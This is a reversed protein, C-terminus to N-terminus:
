WFLNYLQFCLKIILILIKLIPIQLLQYTKYLWWWWYASLNWDTLFVFNSIFTLQFILLIQSSMCSWNLLSFLHKYTERAWAQVLTVSLDKSILRSSLLQECLNNIAIKHNKKIFRQLSQPYALQTQSGM